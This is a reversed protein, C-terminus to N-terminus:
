PPYGGLFRTRLGLGGASVVQRDLLGPVFQAGSPLGITQGFNAGSAGLASGIRNKGPPGM